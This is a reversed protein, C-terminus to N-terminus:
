CGPTWRCSRRWRPATPSRLRRLLVCHESGTNATLSLGTRVARHDPSTSTSGYHGNAMRFDEVNFGVKEDLGLAVSVYGEFDGNNAAAAMATLYAQGEPSRVPACALQRDPVAVGYGAMAKEMTRVHDTCIQHGLGRSGCHIMVCVQDMQLGMASAAAAHYVHDISQIELSHNGSGLSGVQGLGREAARSSVQTPDAASVAGADECRDLDRPV